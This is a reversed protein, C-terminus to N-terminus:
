SASKDFENEIYYYDENQNHHGSNIQGWMSCLKHHTEIIEWGDGAGQNMVITLFKHVNQIDGRRDVNFVMSPSM